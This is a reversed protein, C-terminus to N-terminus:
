MQKRIIDYSSNYNPLRNSVLPSRDLGGEAAQPEITIWSGSVKVGNFAHNLNNNSIYRVHYGEELAYKYFLEAYDMCNIEGDGNQDNKSGWSKAKQIEYNFFDQQTYFRKGDVEYFHNKPLPEYRNHSERLAQIDSYELDRAVRELIPYTERISSFDRYAKATQNNQIVTNTIKKSSTAVVQGGSYKILAGERPNSVWKGNVLAWGNKDYDSALLGYKDRDLGSLFVVVSNLLRTITGTAWVEFDDNTFYLIIGGIVM